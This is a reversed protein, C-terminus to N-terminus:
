EDSFNFWLPMTGLLRVHAGYLAYAFLSSLNYPVELSTRATACKVAHKRLTSSTFEIPGNCKIREGM